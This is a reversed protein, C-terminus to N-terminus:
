GDGFKEKVIQWLTWPWFICFVWRLGRDNADQAPGFALRSFTMALAVGLVYLAPLIGIAILWYM